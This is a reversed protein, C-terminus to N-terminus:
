RCFTFLLFCFASIFGGIEATNEMEAKQKGLKLKEKAGRIRALRIKFHSNVPASHALFFCFASFLFCFYLMSWNVRKEMEAKQKGL